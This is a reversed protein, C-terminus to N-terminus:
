TWLVEDINQNTGKGVIQVELQCFKFLIPYNWICLIHIKKVFVRCIINVMELIDNAGNQLLKPMHFLYHYKCYKGYLKWRENLLRVSWVLNLISNFCPRDWTDKKFCNTGKNPESNNFVIKFLNDEFLKENLLRYWFKSISWQTQIYPCCVRRAVASSRNYFLSRTSRETNSIRVYDEVHCM